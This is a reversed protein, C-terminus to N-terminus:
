PAPASYTRIKFQTAELALSLEALQRTIRDRQEIMIQRREPITSEGEDVLSVYRRLDSMTMGSVRMRGIFILRRLDAASYARYGSADRDPHVLGLDEYYRLTHPSFRVLEAAQAIGISAADAEITSDDLLDHILDISSADPTTEVQRMLKAILTQTTM